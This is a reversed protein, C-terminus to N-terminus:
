TTVDSHYTKPDSNDHVRGPGEKAMPEPGFGWSGSPVQLWTHPVISKTFGVTRNKLYISTIESPLCRRGAEDEVTLPNTKQGKDKKQQGGTLGFGAGIGWFATVDNAYIDEFRPTDKFVVVDAGDFGEYTFTMADNKGGGVQKRGLYKKTSAAQGEALGFSTALAGTDGGVGGRGGTTSFVM